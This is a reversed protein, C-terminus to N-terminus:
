MINCNFVVFVLHEYHFLVCVLHINYAVYHIDYAIYKTGTTVLEKVKKVLLEVIGSGDCEAIYLSSMIDRTECHISELVGTCLLYM